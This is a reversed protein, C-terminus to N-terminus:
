NRHTLSATLTEGPPVRKRQGSAERGHRTCKHRRVHRAQPFDLDVRKFM